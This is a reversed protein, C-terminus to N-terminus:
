KKSMVFDYELTITDNVTLVISVRPQTLRFQDFTFKTKASGKLEDGSVVATVDWVTPRTVGKVTLDGVLQFNAPGSTPIPSALGRVDTIRLTTTPFSDTELLRTRIYKDRRSQDSKLNTMIAAFGSGNPIVRGDKDLAISGNVVPTEGVADNDLEKGALRERVRYRAFNGKPKTVYVLPLSPDGKSEADAGASSSSPGNAKKSPPQQVLPYQKQARPILRIASAADRLSNDGRADIASVSSTTGAATLTSAAIAAVTIFRSLVIFTKTAPLPCRARVVRRMVERVTEHREDHIVAM